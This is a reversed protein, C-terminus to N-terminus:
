GLPVVIIGGQHGENLENLEFVIADGAADGLLALQDQMALDHPCVILRHEAQDDAVIEHVKMYYVEFTKRDAKMRKKKVDLRVTVTQGAVEKGLDLMNVSIYGDNIPLKYLHYPIAARDGKAPVELPTFEDPFTFKAVVGEMFGESTKETPGRKGKAAIKTRRIGTVEDFGDKFRPRRTVTRKSKTM